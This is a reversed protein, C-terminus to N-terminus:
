KKQLETESTAAKPVFRKEIINLIKDKEDLFLEDIEETSKFAENCLELILDNRVQLFKVIGTTPNKQVEALALLYMKQHKGKPEAIEIVKGGIEVKGAIKSM